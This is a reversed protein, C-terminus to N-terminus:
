VRFTFQKEKKGALLVPCVEKTKNGYKAVGRKGDSGSEVGVDDM